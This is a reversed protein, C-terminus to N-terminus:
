KRVHMQNEIVDACPREVLLRCHSPPLASRNQLNFRSGCRADPSRAAATPPPTYGCDSRGVGARQGDRHNRFPSRMREPLANVSARRSGGFFEVDADDPPSRQALVLALRLDGLDLSEDRAAYGAQHQRREVIDRERLRDGVRAAVIDGHHDDVRAHLAVVIDTKDGGIIAEGAAHSSVLRASQQM